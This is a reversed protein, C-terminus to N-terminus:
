AKPAESPGYLRRVCALLRSRDVPKSLFDAVGPADQIYSLGSLLVVPCHSATKRRKWEALFQWGDMVPMRLDLLILGPATNAETALALAERGDAAGIARYGEEELLDRLGQRVAEDDEVVLIPASDRAARAITHGDDSAATEPGVGSAAAPPPSIRRDEVRPFADRMEAASAYRRAPDKEMARAVVAAVDAPVDAIETLPDPDEKVIMELLRFLNDDRFPKRFGLLEYALVGLGFLDSRTDVPDGSVQEPSMYGISGVGIGSKTLNTVSGLAKAIGFDMLKVSGDPLVRVNAPKIDRHIVGSRHAFDLAEAVGRIIDLRAGLGAPERRAILASLDEGGLLEQVIFPTDGEIGSGYIETINPHRLAGALEAERFFRAHMEEGLTCAKIAVARAREADWAKYVAGFGGAGIREILQYRGLSGLPQGGPGTGSVPLSLPRSRRSPLAIPSHPVGGRFVLNALRTGRGAL